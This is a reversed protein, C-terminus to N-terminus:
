DRTARAYARFVRELAVCALRDTTIEELIASPIPDDHEALRNDVSLTLDHRRDDLLSILDETLSIKFRRKTPEVTDPDWGVVDILDFVTRYRLTLSHQAEPCFDLFDEFLDHGFMLAKKAELRLVNATERDVTLTTRAHIRQMTSM